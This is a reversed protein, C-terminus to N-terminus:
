AGHQQQVNRGREVLLSRMVPNWQTVMDGQAKWRLTLLSVAGGWIGRVDCCVGRRDTRGFGHRMLWCGGQWTLASVM